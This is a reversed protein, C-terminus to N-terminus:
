EDTRVWEIASDDYWVNGILDPDVDEPDSQTPLTNCCMDTVEQLTFNWNWYIHHIPGTAYEAHSVTPRNGFEDILDLTL